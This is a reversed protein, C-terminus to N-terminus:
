NAKLVKKLHISITLSFSRKMCMCDTSDNKKKPVGEERASSIIAHALYGIIIKM